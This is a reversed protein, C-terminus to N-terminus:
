SFLLKGNGDEAAVGVETIRTPTAGFNTVYVEYASHKRGGGELVAAQDPSPAALLRMYLPDSYPAACSLSATVAIAAFEFLVACIAAKSRMRAGCITSFPKDIAAM